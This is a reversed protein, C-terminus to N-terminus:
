VYINFFIIYQITKYNNRKFRNVTFKINIKDTRLNWLLYNTRLSLIFQIVLNFQNFNGM